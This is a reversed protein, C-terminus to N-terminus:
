IEMTKEIEYIKKGIDDLEKLILGVEAGETLSLSQARRALKILKRLYFMIDNMLKRNMVNKSFLAESVDISKRLM